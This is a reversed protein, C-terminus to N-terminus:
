ILIMIMRISHISKSVKIYDTDTIQLNFFPINGSSLVGGDASLIGLLGSSDIYIDKYEGNYYYKLYIDDTYSDGNLNQKIQIPKGVETNNKPYLYFEDTIKDEQIDDQTEISFAGVIFKNQNASSINCWWKYVAFSSSDETAPGGENNKTLIKGTM